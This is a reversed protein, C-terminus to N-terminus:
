ILVARVPVEQYNDLVLVVRRPLRMTLEQFYRRTFTPLGLMYEPTLVPLPKRFRPALVKAALSLYYFFSSPDGDGEDMRYWLVPLRRAKLYSAVLTTKGAGPPGTIWVVPRRRARDLVRYLRTRELVRPLRPPTLKAPAARRQGIRSARKGM